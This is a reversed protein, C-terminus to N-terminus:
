TPSRRAAISFALRASNAAALAFFLACAGGIWPAAFRSADFFLAIGAALVSVAGLVFVWEVRASEHRVRRLLNQLGFCLAACLTLCLTMPLPMGQAFCALAVLAQFAVYVSASTISAGASRVRWFRRAEAFAILALTFIHMGLYASLRGLQLQQWVDAGMVADVVMAACLVLVSEIQNLRGMQFIGTQTQEWCTLAAASPLLLAFAFTLMGGSQLSLAAILAIYSTNLLDLGHDLLEGGASTQGTRRAHGGDANDCFVYLQLLLAAAVFRWGSPDAFLLLLAGLCAFHGALSIWNPHLGKPILPLIPDLIFRKYYPLLISRDVVKYAAPAPDM